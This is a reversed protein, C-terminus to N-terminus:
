KRKTKSQGSDNIDPLESVVNPLTLLMLPFLGDLHSMRSADFEWTGGLGRTM